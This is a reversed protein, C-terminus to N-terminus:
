YCQLLTKEQKTFRAVWCLWALYDNQLYQMYQSYADVVSPSDIKRQLQFSDKIEPFLKILIKKPIVALLSLSHTAAQCSTCDKHFSTHNWLIHQSLTHWGIGQLKLFENVLDQEHLIEVMLISKPFQLLLLHTILELRRMRKEEPYGTSVMM